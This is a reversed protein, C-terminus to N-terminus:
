SREYLPIGKKFIKYCLSTKEEIYLNFENQTYVIIDKAIKLGRLAKFGKRPRIYSKEKSDNILIMIDLDSDDTPTGWAYSGFLFISELNYEQVLKNTVINIKEQSIM